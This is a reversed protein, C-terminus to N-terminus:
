KRTLDKIWHYMKPLNIRVLKGEDLTLCDLAALLQEQPPGFTSLRLSRRVVDNSLLQPNIMVQETQIVAQRLTLQAKLHNINALLQQTVHDRTSEGEELTSSPLNIYLELATRLKELTELGSELVEPENSPYVTFLIQGAQHTLKSTVHVGLQRLLEVFYILYQQCPMEVEEPFDFVTTLANTSRVLFVSIAESCIERVLHFTRDVEGGIPVAPDLVSFKIVFSDEEYPEEGSDCRSCETDPICRSESIRLLEQTYEAFSYPKKWDRLEFQFYYEITFKEKAPETEFAKLPPIISLYRLATLEFLEDLEVGINKLDNFTCKELKRLESPELLEITQRDKLCVDDLLLEGNLLVQPRGRNIRIRLM